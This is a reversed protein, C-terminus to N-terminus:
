ACLFVHPPQVAGERANQQGGGGVGRVVRRVMDESPGGESRGDGVREPTVILSV